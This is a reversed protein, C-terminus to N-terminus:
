YRVRLEPNIDYGETGPPSVAFLGVPDNAPRSGPEEGVPQGVAAEEVATSPQHRFVPAWMWSAPQLGCAACRAPSELAGRIHGCHVCSWAITDPPTERPVVNDVLVPGNAPIIVTPVRSGHWVGESVTGMFTRAVAGRGHSGMVVLDPSLEEVAALLGDVAHGMRLHVRCPVDAALATGCVRRLASEGEGGPGGVPPSHALEIPAAVASPAVYVIDLSGGV